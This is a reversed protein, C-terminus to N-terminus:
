LSNSVISLSCLWQTGWSLLRDQSAPSELLLRWNQGRLRRNCGGAVCVGGRSGGGGVVVWGCVEQLEELKDPLPSGGVARM